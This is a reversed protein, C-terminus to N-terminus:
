PMAVRHATAGAEFVASVTRGGARLNVRNIQSDSTEQLFNSDIIISAGGYRPADFFVNIVDGRLEVGVFTLAIPVGQTDTLTFQALSYDRIADKGEPTEFWSLSVAGARLADEMDHAYLFHTVELRSTRPNVEILSMAADMRHAMAKTPSLILAMSLLLITLIVPKRM